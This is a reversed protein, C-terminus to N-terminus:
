GCAQETKARWLQMFKKSIIPLLGLLVFASILSPSSIDSLQRIKALETGAYVYVATGALMGLQSVWYFTWTKIPLLGMVLNVMFFPFLPVLRLAFLYFAGEEKFGQHFKPLQTSFRQKLGEGLIFRAMLFALTAGLSSAFSVLLLGQWFGFLSGAILTMLSAAPLSFATMLLYIAFFATLFLLYHQQQLTQWQQQQNQINSLTFLEAGGQFYFGIVIGIFAFLLLIRPWIKHSKSTSQSM